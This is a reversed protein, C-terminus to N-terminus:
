PRGERVRGVGAAIGNNPAGLAPRRCAIRRRRGPLAGTRNELTNPAGLMRSPLYSTSPSVPRSGSM